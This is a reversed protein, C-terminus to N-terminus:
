YHKQYNEELVFKNNLMWGPTGYKLEDRTQGTGDRIKTVGARSVNGRKTKQCVDMNVLSTFNNFVVGLRRSLQSLYQQFKKGYKHGAILFGSKPRFTFNKTLQM